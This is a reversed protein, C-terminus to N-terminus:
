EDEKFFTTFSEESGPYGEEIFKRHKYSSIPYHKHLYSHQSCYEDADLGLMLRIDEDTKCECFLWVAKDPLAFWEHHLRYDGFHLHLTQEHRYAADRSQFPVQHIVSDVRMGPRKSFGIKYDNSGNNQGLYVYAEVGIAM